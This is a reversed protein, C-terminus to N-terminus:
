MKKFTIQNHWNIQELETKIKVMIESRQILSSKPEINKTVKPLVYMWKKAYRM